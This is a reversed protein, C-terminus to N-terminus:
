QLQHSATKNSEQAGALNDLNHIQLFYYYFNLLYVSMRLCVYVCVYVLKYCVCCM